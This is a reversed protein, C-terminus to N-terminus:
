VKQTVSVALTSKRYKQQSQLMSKFISKQWFIVNPNTKSTPIAEKSHSFCQVTMAAFLAPEKKLVQQKQLMGKNNRYGTAINNGTTDYCGEVSYKPLLVSIYAPFALCVSPISLILCLAYPM